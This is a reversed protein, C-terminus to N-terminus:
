AKFRISSSPRGFDTRMAQIRVAPANLAHVIRDTCCLWQSTYEDRHEFVMRVARERVESSYPPTRKTM